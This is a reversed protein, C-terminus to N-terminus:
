ESLNLYLLRTDYVLHGWKSCRADRCGFRCPRPPAQRSRLKGARVMYPRCGDVQKYDGRGFREVALALCVGRRMGM